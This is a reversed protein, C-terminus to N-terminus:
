SSCLFIWYGLNLSDKSNIISFKFFVTHYAGLGMCKLLFNLKSLNYINVNVEIGNINELM